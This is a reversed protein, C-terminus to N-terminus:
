NDENLFKFIPLSPTRYKAIKTSAQAAIKLKKSKRQMMVHGCHSCKNDGKSAAQFSKNCNACIMCDNECNFLYWAM